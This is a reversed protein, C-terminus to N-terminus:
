RFARRRSNDAEERVISKVQAKLNRDHEELVARLEEANTGGSINYVPAITVIYENSGANEALMASKKADTVAEGGNFWMLEPGREGVWTWGSTANATGSADYNYGISGIDGTRPIVTMGQYKLLEESKQKLKNYACIIEPIKSEVANAYSNMTATAAQGAEYSLDMDDVADEVASVANQVAKDLDAVSEGVENAAKEREAKLAQYNKVAEKLETESAGALGAITAASQASGDSLAAVFEGLGDINQSNLTELNKSYDQWYSIQSELNGNITGIDTATVAAAEDWLNFQKEFSKIAADYAEEYATALIGLEDVAPGIAEVFGDAAGDAEEQADYFAEISRTVAGYEANYKDLADNAASIADNAERQQEKNRSLASALRDAESVANRTKGNDNEKAKALDEVINAEEVQLEKLRQEARTRDTILEVVHSGYEQDVKARAQARANEEWAAAQARIAATDGEVLGTQEDLSLNLGPMAGNIRDVLAAYEAHASTAATGARELEELRSIYDAVATASAQTSALSHEYSEDMEDMASATEKISDQLDLMETNTENLMVAAAGITTVLATLGIAIWGVPGAMSETVLKAVKSIAIYAALASTAAVVGATLAAFGKVLNPNEESLETIAKMVRALVDYTRVLAPNLADGVAIKLNNYQNQMMTLKAEATGYMINAKDTLATNANWAENAQTITNTLLDGASALGLIAKTQRVNTIGLDNLVVIASKGNRETDNLGQVFANMAGVADRGWANKFEMATMNAVKAFGELGDGTEVATYLKQILQSMSSSGANAEIGLSGVAASIALIDRESMGAVNAAAAMGQAMRVVRSATTATADGLQAVTAGLRAYDRTGTVNAFQALLTAAEDAALDTTTDLMAMVRTFEEVDDKAIGLQGATTAINGLSETTIPITTSLDKFNDGMAAIEEESGGVTRRVAAMTAEYERAAEAAEFFWDKVANTADLLKSAALIQAISDAADSSEDSFLKAGEAAEGFGKDLDEIQKKLRDSEEKLKTTDVGADELRKRYEELVDKQKELAARTKEIQAEKDLMKNKLDSSSQGTREYEEQINKLQKEYRELVKATEEVKATQREFLTIDKLSGKLDNYEKGYAALAAQATRFSTKYAADLKASLRMIFEYERQAM